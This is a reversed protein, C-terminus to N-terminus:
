FAEDVDHGVSLSLGLISKKLLRNAFLARFFQELVSSTQKLLEHDSGEVAARVRDAIVTFTADPVAAAGGEAFRAIAEKLAPWTSGDNIQHKEM